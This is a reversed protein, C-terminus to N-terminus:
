KSINVKGNKFIIIRDCISNIFNINHSVIIITKNSKNIKKLIKCLKISNIRDLGTDPEDIIIINPNMGITTAINVLRKQGLSLNSTDQDLIKNLGLDTIIKSDFKIKLNNAGFKIEEKVTNEFLTYDPNQFVYGINKSIENIKTKLISKNNYFINGEKPHLLRIINKLLTSKGCGNSGIIGIIENNYIKLNLNKFIQKDKNYYYALNNIELIVKNNNKNKPFVPYKLFLENKYPTLKGKNLYLIRKSIKIFDLDHEVIIITLNYKKNIEKLLSGLKKTQHPDLNATPEDLVLIKPKMAILSALIILQKEGSSLEDIGRDLLHKIDLLTTIESIRKSVEIDSLGLNKLGFSLEDSVNFSFFQEEPNQFMIQIYKGLDSVEKNKIDKELLEIKGSITGHLIKPIINNLTLLLTSKGCGSKGVISIIEGKKVTLNLRNLIKNNTDPYSYSLDIIKLINM